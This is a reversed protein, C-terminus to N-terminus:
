RTKIKAEYEVLLDMKMEGYMENFINLKGSLKNSSNSELFFCTSPSLKVTANMTGKLDYSIQGNETEQVQDPDSVQSGNVTLLYYKKKIATLNVDTYSEFPVPNTFVLTDYWTEGTSVAKDPYFGALLSFVAEPGIQKLTGLIQAKLVKAKEEDDPKQVNVIEQIIEDYNNTDAPKANQHIFLKITKGPLQTYPKFLNENTERGDKAFEWKSFGTMPNNMDTYMNSIKFDIFYGSDNVSIVKADYDVRYTQYVDQKSGMIEQQIHQIIEYTFSFTYDPNFKLKFEVKDQSFLQTSFLVVVLLTIPFHLAKMNKM